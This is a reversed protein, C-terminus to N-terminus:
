KKGTNITAHVKNSPEMMVVMAVRKAPNKSAMYTTSISKDHEDNGRRHATTPLVGSQKSM